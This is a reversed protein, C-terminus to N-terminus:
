AQTEHTTQIIAASKRREKRKIRFRVLLAFLLPIGLIIGCVLAWGRADIKDGNYIVDGLSYADDSYEKKQTFHDFREVKGEFLNIQFTTFVYFLGGSLLIFVVLPIIFSKKM